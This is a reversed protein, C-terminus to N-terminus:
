KVLRMCAPLCVVHVSFRVIYEFVRYILRYCHPSDPSHRVMADTVLITRDPSSRTATALVAPHLHVGDAIMSFFPPGDLPEFSAVNEASHVRPRGLLGVVGPNRHHLPPMANFL